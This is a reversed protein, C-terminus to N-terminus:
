SRRGMKLLELGAARLHNWGDSTLSSMAHHRLSTSIWKNILDNDDAGDDAREPARRSEKKDDDKDAM